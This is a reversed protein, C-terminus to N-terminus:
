TLSIFTPLNKKCQFLHRNLDESWKNSHNTQNKKIILQILKQINYLLGQNNADNAFIKARETPQRKM